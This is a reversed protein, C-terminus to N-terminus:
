NDTLGVSYAYGKLPVQSKFPQGGPNTGMVYHSGNSQDTEYNTLNGEDDYIYQIRTHNSEVLFDTWVGVRFGDKAQGSFVLTYEEDEIREDGLGPNATVHNVQEWFGNPKGDVFPANLIYVTYKIYVNDDGDYISFFSQTRIGKNSDGQWFTVGYYKNLDDDGYELEYGDTYGYYYVEGEEETPHEPLNEFIGTLNPNTLWIDKLAQHDENLTANKIEDLIKVQDQVLRLKDNIEEPQELRVSIAEDGTAEYGRRLTEEAATPDGLGEYTDALKIYVEAVSEDLTIAQEYDPVANEYQELGVYADGRGVYALPQKTDIEIAATFALVAEEYNSENLFRLGMDYQEQWGASAVQAGGGCGTILLV